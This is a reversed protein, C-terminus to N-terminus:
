RHLVFKHVAMESKVIGSFYSFLEGPRLDFMVLM